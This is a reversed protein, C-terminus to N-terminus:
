QPKSQNKKRHTKDPGTRRRNRINKDHPIYEKKDKFEPTTKRRRSIQIQTLAGIINVIMDKISNSIPEYYIEYGPTASLIKEGIENLGGFFITAGIAFSGVPIKKIGKFRASIPNYLKGAISSVAYGGLFHTLNDIEPLIAYLNSNVDGNLPHLAILHSATALSAPIIVDTDLLGNKKLWLYKEKLKIM